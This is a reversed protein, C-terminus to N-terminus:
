MKKWKVFKSAQSADFMLEKFLYEIADQTIQESKTLHSIFDIEQSLKTDYLYKTADAIQFSVAGGNSTAQTIVKDTVVGNNKFEIITEKFNTM